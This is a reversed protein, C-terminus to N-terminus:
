VINLSLLCFSSSDQACSIILSNNTALRMDDKHRNQNLWKKKNKMKCGLPSTNTKYLCAWGQQSKTWHCHNVPDLYTYKIFSVFTMVHSPNWAFPHMVSLFLKEVVDQITCAFVFCVFLVVFMMQRTSWFVKCLYHIFNKNLKLYSLNDM